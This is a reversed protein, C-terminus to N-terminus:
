TERAARRMMRKKEIVIAAKVHDVVSVPMSDPDTISLDVLKQLYRIVYRDTHNAEADSKKPVGRGIPETRLTGACV